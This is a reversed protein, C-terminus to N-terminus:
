RCFALLAGVEAGMLIFGYTDGTLGGGLRPAAFCALGLTIYGCARGGM